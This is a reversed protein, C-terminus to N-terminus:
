LVKVLNLAIMAVSVIITLAKRDIRKCIYAAIPSAVVAGIAQLFATVVFVPGILLMFVIFQSFTVFFESTNATGISTRPERGNMILTSTVIPGWGGGAVADLFGGVLGLLYINLKKLVINLGFGRLLIIVGVVVLYMRVAKTISPLNLTSITVAGIVAGVIGTCALMKVFDKDVNGFRLHSISSSLTSFVESTHITASAVAPTLGFSLYISSSIVGYGMGVSGDVLQALFGVIIPMLTNYGLDM